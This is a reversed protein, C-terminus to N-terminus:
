SRCKLILRLSMSALVALTIHLFHIAVASTGSHHSHSMACKTTAYNRECSVRSLRSDSSTSLLPLADLDLRVFADLKLISLAHVVAKTAASPTMEECTKGNLAPADPKMGLRLFVKPITAVEKDM